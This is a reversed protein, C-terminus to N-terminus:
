NPFSDILAGDSHFGCNPRQLITPQSSDLATQQRHWSQLVTIEKQQFKLEVTTIEFRLVWPVWNHNELLM